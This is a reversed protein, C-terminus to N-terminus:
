LMASLIKKDICSALPCFLLPKDRAYSYLERINARNTQRIYRQLEKMRRPMRNGALIHYIPDLPNKNFILSEVRELDEAYSYGLIFDIEWKLYNLLLRNWVPHDAQLRAMKEKVTGNSMVVGLGYFFYRRLADELDGTGIMAHYNAIELEQCVLGNDNWIQDWIYRCLDAWEVALAFPSAKEIKEVADRIDTDTWVSEPMLTEDDEDIIEIVIVSATGLIRSKYEVRRHVMQYSQYWYSNKGKPRFPFSWGILEIHTMDSTIVDKEFSRRVPENRIDDAKIEVIEGDSGTEINLGWVVKIDPRPRLLHQAEPKLGLVLEEMRFM